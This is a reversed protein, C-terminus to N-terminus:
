FQELKEMNEIAEHFGRKALKQEWVEVPICAMAVRAGKVVLLRDGAKVHFAEAMEPTLTVRGGAVTALAYAKDDIWQVANVESVRDTLRGLVTAEAKWRNVVSFGGEGRHTTALVVLDGDVIEYRQLARPPIAVTLDDRVISVGYAEKAGPMGPMLSPM